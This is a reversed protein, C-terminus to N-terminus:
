KKKRARDRQERMGALYGAVFVAHICAYGTFIKSNEHRKILNELQTSWVKLGYEATEMFGFQERAVRVVEDPAPFYRQNM